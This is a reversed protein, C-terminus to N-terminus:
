RWLGCCDFAFAHAAAADAAGEDCTCLMDKVGFVFMCSIWLCRQNTHVYM